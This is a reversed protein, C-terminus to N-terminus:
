PKPLYPNIKRALADPDVPKRLYDVAGLAAASAKHRDLASVIVVPISAITPDQRQAKLFQHGDMVPMLLDLLILDPRMGQRLLSLAERGDAAVSVSMGHCELALSMATQMTVDDEVVLVHGLSSTAFPALAEVVEGPTQFRQSPSKAMLRAILDGLGHPVEPRLDAVPTPTRYFHCRLKDALTGGPFPVRATLLYYLTCGLSYLDTRIDARRPDLAMEPAIFDPTGLGRYTMRRSVQVTKIVPPGPESSADEYGPAMTVGEGSLPTGFEFEADLALSESAHRALGFDLIKIVGDPTLMLNHPKVDRHLIGCAYAYDLGLAAQRVYNCALSICLRGQSAVIQHLNVGEVYEMVLFRTDGVLEADYATVINPHCLRSVAEIEKHFRERMQVSQLFAKNIVKLAVLRKMLLHEAKFVTGM